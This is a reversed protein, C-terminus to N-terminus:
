VVLRLRRRPLPRRQLQRRDQRLPHRRCPRPCHGLGKLRAWLNEVRHRRRYAARDYPRANRHTTDARVVPQAGAEEVLLLWPASAYAGDCVVRGLHGLHAAVMLLAPAARM